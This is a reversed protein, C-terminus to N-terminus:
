TKLIDITPGTFPLRVFQDYVNRYRRRLDPDVLRDGSDDVMALDHLWRTQEEPSMILDFDSQGKPVSTFVINRLPYKEAELQEILSQEAVNLCSRDTQKFSLKLIDTYSNRHQVYRRMMDVAQGAYLEGNAFHLVYLGCREEPKFLDAISSRGRVWCSPAFGLKSLTAEASDTINM